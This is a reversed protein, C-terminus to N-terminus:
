GRLVEYISVASMGGDSVSTHRHAHRFADSQRWLDFSAQDQWRTVVMYESSNQGRWFEFGVCGPVDVMGSSSLFAKEVEPRPEEFNLRNM